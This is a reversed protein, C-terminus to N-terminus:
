LPPQGTMAEKSRVIDANRELELVMATYDAQGSQGALQVKRADREKLPIAEPRGPQVRSVSYVAEDGSQTSASGISPQEEGAPKPARFIAELVRPDVNEDQRRLMKAAQVEAGAAEAAKEFDEGAELASELKQARERVIDQAKERNLRKEIQEHVDALPKLAAPHHERVQFVASRNADLEAIESIKGQDLVMPNFVADIAAQNTGFPEGGSRTFGDVTRLDLGLAKALGDISEADFLADSLKRELERYAD